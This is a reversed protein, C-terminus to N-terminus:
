PGAVQGVPLQRLSEFIRERQESGQKQAQLLLGAKDNQIGALTEMTQAGKLRASAIKEVSAADLNRAESQEKQAAALMLQEQADPGQQQSQLEQMMRLDDENQPKIIGQALMLRRNFEKIPDMGVGSINEILVGFLPAVYQAVAPNQSNLVSELTGKIDEVTQERLTDYQPGIDAYARFKKGQLTNTEIMNGREDLTTQFLQVTGVTEDKGIIRLARPKSYVEGAMGQYVEGSWVMADKINKMVTITKADEREILAKIAKGSADPNLTEQPAGGTTERMFEPIIQLLSTTSQDLMGPKDYGLPGHQIVNGDTDKLADIVLFPLNNKNAWAKAVDPAQVQMRDFIPVEQGGSAANEAVQSVTVNYSRQPDKLKRVLGRYWESGDVYVRHGYVPIVPIWKGVIRRPEELFEAGSFVSKEVFRREVKRERVFKLEPRRRLFAEVEAHDDASYTEVEGSDFNNYVFVSERKRVVEYRTAVYVLHPRTSWTYQDHWVPPTYASVPDADPFAERFSDETFPKLKTVWRADRKDIRQAAQDWFVTNYANYVPRWEIRQDDNEPDEDDEFLTAIQFAGIGCTAAECIANDVAVDGSFNRYDARYIGNLLDADDDSTASDDPKFEVGVPNTEFKGIFRELFQAVMDFEMRVRQSEQYDEFRGEWQGGEVNVFRMDENAAERQELTVNADRSIDQRYKTHREDLSMPEDPM